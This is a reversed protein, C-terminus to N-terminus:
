DITSYLSEDPSETIPLDGTEMISETTSAGSTIDDITRRPLALLILCIIAILSLSIILVRKRIKKM